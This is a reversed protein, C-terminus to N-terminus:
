EKIKVNDGIKEGLDEEVIEGGAEGGTESGNDEDAEVVDETILSWLVPRSRFPYNYIRNSTTPSVTLEYEEACDFIAFCCILTASKGVGDTVV